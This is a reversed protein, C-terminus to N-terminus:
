RGAESQDREPMRQIFDKLDELRIRRNRASLWIAKLHGGSVYREVRRDWIRLAVAVEEFTLLRPVESGVPKQEVTLKTM